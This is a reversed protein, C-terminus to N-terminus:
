DSEFGNALALPLLFFFFVFIFKVSQLWRYYPFLLFLFSLQSPINKNGDTEVSPGLFKVLIPKLWM